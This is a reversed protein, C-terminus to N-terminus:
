CQLGRVGLGALYDRLVLTAKCDDENYNLIRDRYSRDGNMWRDFWEISAAGSPDEDRWAFGAFTALSKLGLDYTPWISNYKAVAYLNVAGADPDFIAQVDEETAVNPYKKALRRYATKEAASYYYLAAPQNAQIFALAEAFVREEEEPTVEDTIFAQYYGEPHADDVVWFGHLYLFGRMPDDEIDFDLVVASHHPTRQEILLFPPQSSAMFASDFICALPWARRITVSPPRRIPM